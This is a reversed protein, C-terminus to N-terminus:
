VSNLVVKLSSINNGKAVFGHWQNPLKKLVNRAEDEEVFAAFLCSGSGTLRSEAFQSLWNLADDVEPYTKRVLPEFVNSTQGELFHQMKIPKCNRTLRQDSFINATSVHVNPRIVLYWPESIDVSCIDEGVGEAWASHGHIFIPVDAGLQLGLSALEADSLGCSWLINLGHLVTAADSSGGGLGGGMPLKKSVTMDVGQKVGTSKQLLKAAKVVLDDHEAVGGVDNTRHIANDDRVCLRIEDSYDLFQFITQLLHYGDARQGTIHLFLNLKAPAPLTLERM